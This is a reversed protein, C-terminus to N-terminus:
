SCKDKTGWALNNCKLYDMNENYIVWATCSWGAATAKNKCSGNFTTSALTEQQSGVPVIGYKTIYFCFTDVGIQNPGRFGNIDIYIDGYVNQLASTPGRTLANLGLSQLIFHSGDSLKATGMQITNYDEAVNTGNLYKYTNNPFCGGSIGCNKNINMYPALTNLINLSGTPDPTSNALGWNDPTGNENVAQNFAQSLTSYAKKLASVTAQEQQNAIVSPITMAAVVGIISLTILVEVLTFGLRKM